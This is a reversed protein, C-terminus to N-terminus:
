MFSVNFLCLSINQNYENLTIDATLKGSIVINIELRIESKTYKVALVLDHRGRWTLKYCLRSMSYRSYALVSFCLSLWRKIKEFQPWRSTSYNWRSMNESFHEDSAFLFAFHLSDHIDLQIYPFIMQACCSRSAKLGRHHVMFASILTMHPICPM